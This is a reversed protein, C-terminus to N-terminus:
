KGICVKGVQETRDERILAKDAYCQAQSEETVFDCDSDSDFKIFGSKIM